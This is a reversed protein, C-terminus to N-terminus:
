GHIFWYICVSSINKRHLSPSHLHIIHEHSMKYHRWHSEVMNRKQNNGQYHMDMFKPPLAESPARLLLTTYKNRWFSQSGIIAQILCFFDFKFFKLSKSQAVKWVVKYLFCAWIGQHLTQSKILGCCLFLIVVITCYLYVCSLIKEQEWVTPLCEAVTFFVNHM